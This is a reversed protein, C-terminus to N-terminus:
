ELRENAKQAIRRALDLSPATVKLARSNSHVEITTQGMMEYEAAPSEFGSAPRVQTTKLLADANADGSSASRMTASIRAALSEASPAPSIPYNVAVIVPREGMFMCMATNVTPKAYEEESFTGNTSAVAAGILAEMESKLVLACADIRTNPSTEASQTERQSEGGCQAFALALTAAGAVRGLKAQM